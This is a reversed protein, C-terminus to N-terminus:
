CIANRVVDFCSVMSVPTGDRNQSTYNLALQGYVFTISEKPAEDDHAWSIKSTFVTSFTYKLFAPGSSKPDGGAKRMELTVKPIHEGTAAKLFFLPSASDTTKTITFENFKIKGAGAGGTASGITTPNEVSFSFDKIEFKCSSGNPGNIGDVTLFVGRNPPSTNCQITGGSTTTEGVQAFSQQTSMFSSFVLVFTAAFIAGLLKTNTM